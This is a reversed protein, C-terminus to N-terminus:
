IFLSFYLFFGPFMNGGVGFKNRMLDLMSFKGGWVLSFRVFFRGEISGPIADASVFYSMNESVKLVNGRNPGKKRTFSM